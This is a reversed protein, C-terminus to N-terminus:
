RGQPVLSERPVLMDEALAALYPPCNFFWLRKWSLGKLCWVRGDQGEPVEVVIVNGPQPAIEAVVRGEGDLVSHAGGEVYYAVRRAGVPVFFYQAMTNGALPYISRGRELPWVAPTGPEYEIQWGAGFDDVRLTYRGREPVEVTLEHWQGDLPLEGEDVLADDPAIVQWRTPRRDRYHPIYGTLLRCRLPTGDSLMIIDRTGQFIQRARQGGPMPPFGGHVLNDSFEREEFDQAEYRAMDQAFLAEVEDHTYDEGTCWAANDRHKQWSWEDPQEIGRLYYTAYRGRIGTSHVIYRHRTRWAFNLLAFVTNLREQEPQSVSLARIIGVYHLYLKIDDLRRLVDPRDAALRSAEAVDAYQLALLHDSVLPRNGGDFREYYRRMPEAAPGFAKEYFDTCIAAVDAQPNWMLRSAVLYGLGNPGYNAGSECSMTTANHEAYWPFREAIYAVNAGRAAGPMDRTWAWVNLYEYIGLNDAHDAWIEVLEDFTYRGRTFGATIQVYVNPEMHFSPPESHLYYALTGVLKGPYHEAVTRAVQNTLWHVREPVTGMARCDACTCYGGGDSPEMSVMDEDPNEAFYDLAYRRCLAVVEPNSICLKSGGRRAPTDETPLLLALYEPHEDFQARNQSIIRQWAHGARVQLSGGMWNRRQWREWDERAQADWPGWDWWIVRSYMAPRDTVDLDVALRNRRPIIHWAESPFFWRCGLAELLRTIGRDLGLDTAGLVLVRRASTRIGFAERGDHGDIALADAWEPVPFQEPTGLVLGTSGNGTVVEFEAGCMQALLGALEAALERQRETATEAIVVPMLARGNEAIVAEEATGPSACVGAILASLVIMATMRAGWM